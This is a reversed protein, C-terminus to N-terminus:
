PIKRGLDKRHGINDQLSIYIIRDIAYGATAISHLFYVSFYNKEITKPHAYIWGRTSNWIRVRLIRTCIRKSTCYRIRVQMQRTQFGRTGVDAPPIAIGVFYHAENGLRESKFIFLMFPFQTNPYAWVSSYENPEVGSYGYLVFYNHYLYTTRFLVCAQQMAWVEYRKRNM